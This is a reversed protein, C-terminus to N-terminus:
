TRGSRRRSHVWCMSRGKMSGVVSAEISTLAYAKCGEVRVSIPLLDKYELVSHVFEANALLHQLDSPGWTPHKCEFAKSLQQVGDRIVLREAQKLCRDVSNAEVETLCNHFRQLLLSNMQRPLECNPPLRPIGTLM